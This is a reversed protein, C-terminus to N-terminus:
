GVGQRGKRGQTPHHIEPLANEWSILWATNNGDAPPCPPRNDSWVYVLTVGALFHYIFSEAGHNYKSPTNMLNDNKGTNDMLTISTMYNSKRKRYQKFPLTLSKIIFVAWWEKVKEGVKDKSGYFISGKRLNCVSSNTQIIEHSVLVLFFFLGSYGIFCYGVQCITTPNWEPQPWM